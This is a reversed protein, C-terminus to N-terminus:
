YDERRMYYRYYIYSVICIIVFIILLFSTDEEIGQYQSGQRYEVTVPTGIGDDTIIIIYYSVSPLSVPDITRTTSNVYDSYIVSLDTNLVYVSANCNTTIIIEVPRINEIDFTTIRHDINWTATRQQWMERSLTNNGLMVKLSGTVHIVYNGPASRGNLSSQGGSNADFNEPSSLNYNSNPTDIWFQGTTVGWFGFFTLDDLYVTLNENTLILPYYLDHVDQITRSSENLSINVHNEKKGTQTFITAMLLIGVIVVASLLLLLRTEPRKKKVVQKM